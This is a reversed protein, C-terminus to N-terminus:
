SDSMLTVWPSVTEASIMSSAGSASTAAARLATGSIGSTTASSSKSVGSLGKAPEQGEILRNGMELGMRTESTEVLQGDVVQVTEGILDEGVRWWGLHHQRQRHEAEVVTGTPRPDPM